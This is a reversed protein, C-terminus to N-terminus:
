PSFTAKLVIARTGAATPTIAVAANPGSRAIEDPGTFGGATRHSPQTDRLRVPREFTPGELGTQSDTPIVRRKNIVRIAAALCFGVWETARDAKTIVKGALARRQSIRVTRGTRPDVVVAAAM